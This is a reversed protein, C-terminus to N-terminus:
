VCGGGVRMGNPVRTNTSQDIFVLGTAATYLWVRQGTASFWVRDGDPILRVDIPMEDADGITVAGGRSQVIAPQGKDPIDNFSHPGPSQLIIPHGASDLGIPKFDTFSYWPTLTHSTLDFRVIHTSLGNGPSSNSAWAAGGGIAWWQGVQDNPSTYQTEAVVRRSQGTSPDIVYLEENVPHGFDYDLVYYVGGPGWGVIRLGRNPASSLIVKDTRRVMDRRHLYTTAIFNTVPEIDYTTYVYSREDPAVWTGPVPLWINLSRDYSIGPSDPVRTANVEAGASAPAPTFTGDSMNVFGYQAQAPSGVGSVPLRCDRISGPIPQRQGGQQVSVYVLGAVVAVTLLAAVLQPAIGFRTRARLHRAPLSAIVRGRLAPDAPAVDFAERLMRRIDETM